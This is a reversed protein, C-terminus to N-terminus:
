PDALRIRNSNNNSNSNATETAANSVELTGGVRDNFIFGGAERVREKESPVTAKHVTSLAIAHTPPAGTDDLAGIVCRSDGLNGVIIWGAETAAAAAIAANGGSGGGSSSSRSSVRSAGFAAGCGRGGILAFVCCCGCTTNPPDAGSLEGCVFLDM